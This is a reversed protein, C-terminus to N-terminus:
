VGSGSQELKATLNKVQEKLELIREERGMMIENIKKLQDRESKFLQEAQKRQNVEGTLKDNTLALATEAHSHGEIERLLANRTELLQKNTSAFNEQIRDKYREYLLVLMVVLTGLSVMSVMFLLQFGAPTLQQLVAIGARKLLYFVFFQASCIGLWVLGSFRGAVVFAVVPVVVNWVSAPSGHGGTYFSIGLLVLFFDLTLWNGALTASRTKLLAVPTLLGTCTGFAVIAASATSGLFFYVITFVPGWVCVALTFSLILEARRLADGGQRHLSEPVYVETVRRILTKLM